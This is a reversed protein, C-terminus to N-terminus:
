GRRAEGLRRYLEVYRERIRFQPTFDSTTILMDNLLREAMELDKEGLRGADLAALSGELIARRVRVNADYRFRWAVRFYAAYPLLMPLSRLGEVRVLFHQFRREVAMRLREALALDRAVRASNATALPFAAARVEFYTDGVARALLEELGPVECGMHELAKLVNRRMFPNGNRFHRLLDGVRDCRGLAGALKIGVNVTRWDGSALCEEMKIAYLQRFFSEPPQARLFDVLVDVQKHIRVLAPAVIDPMFAIAERGLAATMTEITKPAFRRFFATHAKDQLVDLRGPDRLLGGLLAWFEDLDVFDVGDAARREFVVACGDEEALRIANHEQHDGPLGRKPVVVAARGMATIEAITGAGARCVVLDSAAMYDAIDHLYPQLRYTVRGNALSAVLGEGQPLPSAGTPCAALLLGATEEWAAYEGGGLGAAHVVTIPRGVQDLRSLAGLMLRNISRSGLSGGYALIVLHDPSLGLRARCAARDRERLFEERVPYGTYVCRNNWLFFSTEPFSVMVVSAFLSALKNMLGPMVNQEHIVLPARLLPRLLFAAFCVPASVYGGAALVLHPRFRLLIWLAQLTGLLIKGLSPLLRWPSLGSIPAAAILELPIGARPVIKEEARGKTGVYLSSAVPVQQRLLEHIVLIPYVHGGTGGGTLLVRIPKDQKGERTM